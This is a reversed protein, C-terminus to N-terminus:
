KENKFKKMLDNYIKERFEIYGQHSTRLVWEGERITVGTEDIIDDTFSSYKNMITRVKEEFEIKSYMNNM